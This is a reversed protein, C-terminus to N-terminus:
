FYKFKNIINSNISSSMKKVNFVVIKNNVKSIKCIKLM